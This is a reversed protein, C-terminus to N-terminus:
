SQSPGVAEFNVYVALPQTTDRKRRAELRLGYSRCEAARITVGDAEVEDLEVKPDHALPPCFAVHAATTQEGSAFEIRATGRVIEQGDELTRTLQQVIQAPSSAALRAPPLVQETTSAELPLVRWCAETAIVPLWLALVALSSTGSLTLGVVLLWTVISIGHLWKPQEPLIALVLRRLSWTGLALLLGAILAPTFDLPAVLAGGLRRALLYITVLTIAAALTAVLLRQIVTIEASRHRVSPSTSDM